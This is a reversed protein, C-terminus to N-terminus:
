LQLCAEIQQQMRTVHQCSLDGTGELGPTACAAEHLLTLQSADLTRLVEQFLADQNAVGNPEQMEGVPSPQQIEEEEDWNDWSELASNQKGNVGSVTLAQQRQSYLSAIAVLLKEKSRNGSTTCSLWMQLYIDLLNAYTADKIKTQVISLNEPEEEVENDNLVWTARQAQDHAWQVAQLHSLSTSRGQRLNTPVPKWRLLENSQCTVLSEGLVNMLVEISLLRGERQQWCFDIADRRKNSLSLLMQEILKLSAEDFASNASPELEDDVSKGQQIGSLGLKALALVVSSSKQRVSSAIHMVYKELTPFVFKWHRLLFRSPLCPAMRALVDLLGEAEFADLLESESTNAIGDSEDVKDNRNMRNLKSIVEQFILLRTPTECLAAYEVLCRAALQRVTLQDHRLCQYIAPKLTQVLCRPLQTFTHRENLGLRYRVAPSQRVGLIGKIDEKVQSTKPNEPQPSTSDMKISRLLDSLALLAGERETWATVQTKDASVSRSGVAVGLLSDMFQEIHNLSPFEFAIAAANKACDKRIASWLDTVGLLLLRVAEDFFKVDFPPSSGARAAKSQSAQRLIQFAFTLFRQRARPDQIRKVVKNLSSIAAADWENDLLLGHLVDVFSQFEAVDRGEWDVSIQQDIGLIVKGGASDTTARFKRVVLYLLLDELLSQSNNRCEDDSDFQLVPSECSLLTVDIQLKESSIRPQLLRRFAGLEEDHGEALLLRRVSAM